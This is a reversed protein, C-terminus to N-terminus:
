LGRSMKPLNEERLSKRRETETLGADTRVVRASPITSLSTVAATEEEARQAPQNGHAAARDSASSNQAPENAHRQSPKKKHRSDRRSLGIKGRGIWMVRDAAHRLVRVVPRFPTVVNPEEAAVAQDRLPRERCMAVLRHHPDIARLRITRLRLLHDRVEFAVHQDVEVGRRRVM